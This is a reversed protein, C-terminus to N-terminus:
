LLGRIARRTAAPACWGNWWIRRRPGHRRRPLQSHLALLYFAPVGVLLGAICVAFLSRSRALQTAPEPEPGARLLNVIALAFLATMTIGSTVCWACYAHIVFTQLSELYLSFLFGFGTMGLIAYRALRALAGSFLSEAVIAIALLTYGLVGFVPMSVGFLTSYASARVADCGTGLCVMPRSPSTYTYLLYLSDFLGLLSLALTLSKRM